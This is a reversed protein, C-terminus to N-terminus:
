IKARLSPCAPSLCLKNRQVCPFTSINDQGKWSRLELLGSLCREGNGSHLSKHSERWHLQLESSPLAYMLQSCTTAAPDQGAKCFPSPKPTAMKYKHLPAVSDGALSSSNGGQRYSPIVPQKLAQRAGSSHKQTTSLSSSRWHACRINKQAKKHCDSPKGLKM